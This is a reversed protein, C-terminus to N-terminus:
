GALGALVAGALLLGTVAESTNSFTWDVYRLRKLM